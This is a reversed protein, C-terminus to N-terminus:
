QYTYITETTDVGTIVTTMKKVYGEEDYEYFYGFEATGLPTILLERRKLNKSSAGFFTTGYNEYGQTNQSNPYYETTRTYENEDVSSFLQERIINGNAIEWVTYNATDELQQRLTRYQQQNYAFIWNSTIGGGNRTYGAVTGDDNLSFEFTFDVAGNTKKTYLIKDPFYEYTFEENCAVRKILRGEGDYQFTVLNCSSPNNTTYSLVRKTLPSDNGSKKCGTYLLSVIGLAILWRM